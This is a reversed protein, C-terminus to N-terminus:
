CQNHWTTFYIVKVIKWSFKVVFHVTGFVIELFLIAESFYKLSWYLIQYIFFLM